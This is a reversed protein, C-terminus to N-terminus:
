HTVGNKRAKKQPAAPGDEDEAGAKHAPKKQQGEAQKEEQMDRVNKIRQLAADYANLTKFQPNAEVFIRPNGEGDLTVSQKNGKELSRILDDRGQETKLELIPYKEVVEKLNFGYNEHYQKLKFNGAQDTEKFNLQVWASYEQGEKNTLNKHVARGSMLNYAEKLTINSGKNIYFTQQMVEKEEPKKLAVVYSNFFYMDNQESKKFHLTALSIDKGFEAQHTLVFDPKQEAMQVTLRGEMEEGFGTYKLQDKLFDLNKQNM